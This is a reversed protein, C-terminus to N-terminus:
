RRLRVAAALARHQSGRGAEVDAHLVEWHPSAFIYDIRLFPQGFTYIGGGTGPFTYGYGSGAAEHTDQLFGAFMDYFFGRDVMNFDGVLLFPRDEQELITVLHEFHERRGHWYGMRESVQERWPNIPSLDLLGYVVVGPSLYLTDRPSRPHTQYIVVETGQYDVTFWAGARSRRGNSTTYFLLGSGTVPLKSLLDFESQNVCNDHYPEYGAARAYRHARGSEQLCILDPDVQNIYPRLSTGM